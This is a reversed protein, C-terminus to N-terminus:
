KCYSKSTMESATLSVVRRWTPTVIEAEHSPQFVFVYLDQDTRSPQLVYGSLGAAAEVTLDNAMLMGLHNAFVYQREPLGLCGSYKSEPIQAFRIVAPLDDDLALHKRIAGLRIQLEANNDPTVAPTSNIIDSLKKNEQVLKPRLRWVIIGENKDSYNPILYEPIRAAPFTQRGTPLSAGIGLFHKEDVGFLRKALGIVEPSAMIVKGVAQDRFVQESSPASIEPVSDSLSSVAAAICKQDQRCWRMKWHFTDALEGVDLSYHDIEHQRLLVGALMAVLAVAVVASPRFRSAALPRKHLFKIGLYAIGVCIVSLIATFRAGTGLGQAILGAVTAVVVANALLELFPVSPRNQQAQNALAVPQPAPAQGTNSPEM